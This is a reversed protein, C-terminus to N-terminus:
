WAGGPYPEEKRTAWTNALGDCYQVKGPGTYDKIDKGHEKLNLTRLNACNFSGGMYDLYGAHVTWPILGCELLVERAKCCRKQCEGTLFCHIGCKSCFHHYVQHNETPETMSYTALESVVNDRSNKYTISQTSGDKLVLKLDGDAVM